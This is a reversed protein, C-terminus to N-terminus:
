KKFKLYYIGLGILVVPWFTALFDQVGYLWQFWKPLTVSFIMLLSIGILVFGTIFGTSTKLGRFIFAIGVILAYISWHDLWFDYNQVGHFHIGLGLIITGVFIYQYDSEAYSHILFAIGIILLFTPWTYFTEFLSLDLQQILYYIGIGILIYAVFKNQKKVPKGELQCKIISQIISCPLLYKLYNCFTANRM